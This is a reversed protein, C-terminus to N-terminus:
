KSFFFKIAICNKYQMSFSFQPLFQIVICGNYQLNAAPCLINCYAPITNCPNLHIAVYAPCFNYRLVFNYQSLLSPAPSPTAAPARAPTPAPQASALCANPAPQSRLRAHTPAPLCAPPRARAPRAPPLCCARAARSCGLVIPTLAHSSDLPSLESPLRFINIM